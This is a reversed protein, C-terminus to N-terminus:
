ASCSENLRILHICKALPFVSDIVLGCMACLRDEAACGTVTGVPQGATGDQLGGGPLPQIGPQIAHHGVHLCVAEQGVMLHVQPNPPGQPCLGGLHLLELVGQRRGPVPDLLVGHWPLDLPPLSGASAAHGGQLGDVLCTAGHQALHLLLVHGAPYSLHQM